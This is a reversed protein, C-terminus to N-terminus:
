TIRLPQHQFDRGQGQLTSSTSLFKTLLSATPYAKIWADVGPNSSNPVYPKDLRSRLDLSTLTRKGFENSSELRVDLGKHQFDICYDVAKAYKELIEPPNGVWCCHRVM